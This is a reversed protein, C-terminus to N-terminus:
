KVESKNQSAYSTINELFNTESQDSFCFVKETISFFVHEM